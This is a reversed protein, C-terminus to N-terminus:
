LGRVTLGFIDVLLDRCVERIQEPSELTQREESTSGWFNGNMGLLNDLDDILARIKEPRDLHSVDIPESM